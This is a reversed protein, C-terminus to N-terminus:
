KRLLLENIKSISISDLLKNKYEDYAESDSLCVKVKQKGMLISFDQEYYNGTSIKYYKYFPERVKVPIIKGNKLYIGIFCDPMKVPEQLKGIIHKETADYPLFDHYLSEIREFPITLKLVPEESTIKFGLVDNQNSQFGHEDSEILYFFTSQSYDYKTSYPAKKLLRIYEIELNFDSKNTLTLVISQKETKSAVKLRTSKKYFYFVVGGLFTFLGLFSGIVELMKVSFFSSNTDPVELNHETSSTHTLAL